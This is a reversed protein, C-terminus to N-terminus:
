RRAAKLWAALVSASQGLTAQRDPHFYPNSYPPVCPEPPNVSGCDYGKMIGLAYVQEVYQRYPDDQPLDQFSPREPIRMDKFLAYDALSIAVALEERTVSADPRFYPRSALDCPEKEGENSVAGCSFGSMVGHLTVREIWAYAPHSPPVDAFTQVVLVESWGKAKSVMMALEKRTLPFGVRFYPRNLDDCPEGPGGCPYGTTVGMKSLQEVAPWFSSGTPVDAYTQVRSAPSLVSSNAALVAILMLLICVWAVTSSKSYRREM